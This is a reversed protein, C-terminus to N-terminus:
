KNAATKAVNAATSSSKSSQQQKQQQKQHQAARAATNASQQQKQKKAANKGTKASTSGANAAKCSCKSSQHPFHPFHHFITFTTSFHLFIHFFSSFILFFRFDSAALALLPCALLPLLPGGASVPFRFNQNRSEFGSDPKSEPKSRTRFPRRTMVAFNDVSIRSKLFHRENQHEPKLSVIEAKKVLFHNKFEGALVEFNSTLGCVLFDEGHQELDLSDCFRKYTCPNIDNQQFLVNTVLKDCSFEQWHKSIRIGSPVKM